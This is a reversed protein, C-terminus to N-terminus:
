HRFTKNKLGKSIIQEHDCIESVVSKHQWKDFMRLRLTFQLEDNILTNYIVQLQVNNDPTVSTLM